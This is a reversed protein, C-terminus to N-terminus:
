AVEVFHDGGLRNVVGVAPYKRRGTRGLVEVDLVLSVEAEGSLDERPVHQAVAFRVEGVQRLPEATSPEIARITGNTSSHLGPCGAGYSANGYM